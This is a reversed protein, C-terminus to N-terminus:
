PVEAFEPSDPEAYGAPVDRVGDGTTLCLVSSPRTADPPHLYRPM